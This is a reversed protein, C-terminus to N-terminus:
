LIDCVKLFKVERLLGLLWEGTGIQQIEGSIENADVLQTEHHCPRCRYESNSTSYEWGRRRDSIKSM